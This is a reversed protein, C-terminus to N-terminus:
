RILGGKGTFVLEEGPEDQWKAAVFVVEGNAGVRLVWGNESAELAGDARRHVEVCHENPIEYSLGWLYAPNNNPTRGRALADLAEELQRHEQENDAKVFLACIRNPYHVEEHFNSTFHYDVVVLQREVSRQPHRVWGIGLVRLGSLPTEIVKGASAFADLVGCPGDRTARGRCVETFSRATDLTPIEGSAATQPATTPQPPEAGYAPPVARQKGTPAVAGPANACAGAALLVLGLAPKVRSRASKRYM